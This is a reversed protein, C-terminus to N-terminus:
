GHQGSRHTLHWVRDDQPCRYVGREIMDASRVVVRKIKVDLLAAQARQRTAYPVKNCHCKSFVRVRYAGAPLSLHEAFHGATHKRTHLWDAPGSQPPFLVYFTLKGWPHGVQSRKTTIMLAADAPHEAELRLRNDRVSM